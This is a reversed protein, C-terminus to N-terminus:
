QLEGPEDWRIEINMRDSDKAINCRVRYGMAKLYKYISEYLVKGNHIEEAWVGDYVVSPRGDRIAMNIQNAIASEKEAPIDELLKTLVVQRWTEHVEKASQIM